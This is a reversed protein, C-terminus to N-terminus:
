ARWVYTMAHRSGALTSRCCECWGKGFTVTECESIGDYDEGGDHGHGCHDVGHARGPFWRGEGSYREIDALWVALEDDAMWAPGDGNVHLMYCDVCVWAESSHETTTEQDMTVTETENNTTM